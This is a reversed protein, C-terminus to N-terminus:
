KPSPQPTTKFKVSCLRLSWREGRSLGNKVQTGIRGSILQGQCFRVMGLNRYHTLLKGLCHNENEQEPPNKNWPNLARSKILPTPYNFYFIKCKSGTSSAPPSFLSAGIMSHKPCQFSLSSLDNWKHTWYQFNFKRGFFFFIFTSGTETKKGPTWATSWLRRSM